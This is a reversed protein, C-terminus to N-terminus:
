RRAEHWDTAHRPGCFAAIVGRFDPTPQYYMPAEVTWEQTPQHPRDGHVSIWSTLPLGEIFHNTETQVTVGCVACTM